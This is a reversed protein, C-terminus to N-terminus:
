ISFLDICVGEWLTYFNPCNTVCDSGQITAFNHHPDCIKRGTHHLVKKSIIHPQFPDLIDSINDYPVVFVLPEIDGPPYLALTPFPQAIPFFQHTYFDSHHISKLDSHYTNLVYGFIHLIIGIIVLNM